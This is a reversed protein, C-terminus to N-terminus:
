KRYIAISRIGRTLPARVIFEVDDVKVLKAELLGPQKTSEQEYRQVSPDDIMLSWRTEGEGQELTILLPEADTSDQQPKLTGSVVSASELTFADDKLRLTLFLFQNTGEGAQVTASSLTTLMMVLILINKYKM